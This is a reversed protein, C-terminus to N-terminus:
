ENNNNIIRKVQTIDNCVVNAKKRQCYVRYKGSPCLREVLCGDIQRLTKSKVEKPKVAAMARARQVMSMVLDNTTM